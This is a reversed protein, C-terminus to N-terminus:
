CDRALPPLSLLSNTQFVLDFMGTELNESWTAATLAIAQLGWRWPKSAEPPPDASLVILNQFTRVLLGTSEM